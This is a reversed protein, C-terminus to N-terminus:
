GGQKLKVTVNMRRPLQQPVARLHVGDVLVAVRRQVVRTEPAVLPHRLVEDVRPAADGDGVLVLVHRQVLALGGHPCTEVTLKFLIIGILIVQYEICRQISYEIM